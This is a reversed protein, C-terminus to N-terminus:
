CEEAMIKQLAETYKKRGKINLHDADHFYSPDSFFSRTDVFCDLGLDNAREVLTDSAIDNALYETSVPFSLGFVKSSNTKKVGKIM